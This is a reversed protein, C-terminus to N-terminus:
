QGVRARMEVPDIPLLSEAVQLLEAEGVGIGLVFLSGQDPQTVFTVMRQEGSTTLLAKRQDLTIEKRDGAIAFPEVAGGGVVIKRKGQDARFTVVYFGPANTGIQGDKAIQSEKASPTMGEPLYAPWLYSFVAPNATPIVRPPAPTSTATAAPAPAPALVPAPSAAPAAAITPSPRIDGPAAPASAANPTTAAGPAGCAVLVTILLLAPFRRDIM